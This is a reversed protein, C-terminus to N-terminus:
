KAAFCTSASCSLAGRNRLFRMLVAQFWGRGLLSRALKSAPPPPRSCGLVQAMRREATACWGFICTARLLFGVAFADNQNRVVRLYM